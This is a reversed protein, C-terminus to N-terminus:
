YEKTLVNSQSIASLGRMFGRQYSLTIKESVGTNEDMEKKIEAIKVLHDQVGKQRFRLEEVLDILGARERSNIHFAIDRSLDEYYTTAKRLLIILDHKLLQINDKRYSEDPSILADNYGNSEFDTQLFEYVENIGRSIADPSKLLDAKEVSKNEKGSPKDEPMLVLTNENNNRGPNEQGNKKFFSFLGM